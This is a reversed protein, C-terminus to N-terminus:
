KALECSGASLGKLDDDTLEPMNDKVRNQACILSDLCIQQEEPTLRDRFKGRIDPNTDHKIQDKFQGLPLNRDPWQMDVMLQNDKTRYITVNEAYHGLEKITVYSGTNLYGDKGIRASGHVWADGKIESNEYARCEDELSAKGHVKADGCASARDRICASEYVEAREFVAASVRANGYVRAHDRVIAHGYIVANDQVVAHGSVSANGRAVANGSLVAWGSVRANEIVRANGYVVADQGVFCNGSKSLNSEKEIWGGTKGESMIQRVTM